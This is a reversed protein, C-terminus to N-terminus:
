SNTVDSVKKDEVLSTSVENTKSSSISDKTQEVPVSKNKECSSIYKEGNSLTLKSSEIAEEIDNVTSPNLTGDSLYELNAALHAIKKCELFDDESADNSPALKSSCEDFKKSSIELRKEFDCRTEAASIIKDDREATTEPKNCSYLLGCVSILAIICITRVIMIWCREEADYNSM